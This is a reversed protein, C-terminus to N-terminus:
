ASAVVPSCTAAHQDPDGAADEGDDRHQEPHREGDEAHEEEDGAIGHLHHEGLEHGGGLLDRAHAGLKVQVLGHERLVPAEHAVREAAVEARRDASAPGDDGLDALVDAARRLERERAHQDGHREADREPEQGGEQAVRPEVHRRHHHREEAHGHRAEPEPQEQDERERELEAPEGRRAAAIEGM